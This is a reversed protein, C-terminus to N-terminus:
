DIEDTNISRSADVLDLFQAEDLIEIGLESAKNAKAGPSDGVIVVDTSKTVSSQVQAGLQLLLKKAQSRGLQSLTGTLVFKKGELKESSQTESSTSDIQLATDMLDEVIARNRSDHFFAVISESVTPGIGKIETLEEVTASMLASLEQYHSALLAATTEGVLPIGVAILLKPLTTKRSADIANLLNDVSKEALRELALLQERKEALRYLDAATEVLKREVLEAILAPGLGEIDM